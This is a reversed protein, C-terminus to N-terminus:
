YTPTDLRWNEPKDLLEGADAATETKENDESLEAPGSDGKQTYAPVLTLTIEAKEGDKESMISVEIYKSGRSTIKASSIDYERGLEFLPESMSARMCFVGLINTYRSNLGMDIGTKDSDDDYIGQVGVTFMQSALDDSFVRYTAAKLEDSNKYKAEDSLEYFKADETKNVPLGTGYYIENLEAAKELLVQLVPQIREDSIDIPAPACGVVFGFLVAVAAIVAIRNFRKVRKRQKRRIPLIM